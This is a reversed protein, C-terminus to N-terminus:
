KLLAASVQFEFTLENHLMPSLIAEPNPVILHENEKLGVPQEMKLLRARARQIKAEVSSIQIEIGARMDTTENKLATALDLNTQIDNNVVHEYQDM